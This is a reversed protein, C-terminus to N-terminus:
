WSRHPCHQPTASKPLYCAEDYYAVGNYRQYELITSEGTSTPASIATLTDGKAPAPNGTLAETVVRGRLTGTSPLDLGLIHALTPVIDINGMPAPDSYGSKFDPGFTRFPYRCGEAQNTQAWGNVVFSLFLLCFFKM